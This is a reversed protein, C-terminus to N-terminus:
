IGDQFLLYKRFQVGETASWSTLDLFARLDFDLVELVWLDAETEFQIEEGEKRWKTVDSCSTLPLPYTTNKFIKERELM